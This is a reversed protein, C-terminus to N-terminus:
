LVNGDENKVDLKNSEIEAVNNKDYASLQQITAVISFNEILNTQNKTLDALAKKSSKEFEVTVKRLVGICEVLEKMLESLKTESINMEEQDREASSESENEENNEEEVVVYSLKSQKAISKKKDSSENTTAAPRKM